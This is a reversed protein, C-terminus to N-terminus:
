PTMEVYVPSEITIQNNSPTIQNGYKDLVITTGAPLTFTHPSDDPSWMVWIKKGMGTFEYTRLPAYATIQQKYSAYSLETTLFKLANYSPKPNGSGDLLSDYRWGPGELEYWATAWIGEAWDRVFLWVVYDAQAEFFDAGPGGTDRGCIVPYATENCLLSGESHYLPKDVGYRAMVERLFDVKGLVVGGRANWATRNEDVLLTGDYGPYGHFSLIDFYDAGGNILVGELFNAPKCDKGAPPNTPDCDLLLGGLIVKATPDAAKIAPYVQKLMTAYYGGGYYPDNPDGWCGFWSDPDYPSSILPVDPENGIEWYHVNYPPKSYRTVAASMFQAFADLANEAIPGCSYGQSKQAWEPTWQVVAVFNIGKASLGKIIEETGANWNYTPPNTRTPEIYKWRISATKRAWKINATKAKTAFDTNAGAINVETGVLNPTQKGRFVIPLFKSVATETNPINTGPAQNEPNSQGALGTSPLVFLSLIVLTLVASLAKQNKIKMTLGEKSIQNEIIANNV